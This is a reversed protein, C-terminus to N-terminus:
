VRSREAVMRDHQFEADGPHHMLAESAINAAVAPNRAFTLTIMLLEVWIERQEPSSRALDRLRSLYNTLEETTLTRERMAERVPQFDSWTTMKAFDFNAARPTKRVDHAHASAGSAARHQEQVKDGNQELARLANAVALPNPNARQCLQALQQEWFSCLISPAASLRCWEAATSEDLRSRNFPGLCCEAALLIIEADHKCTVTHHSFTGKGFAIRCQELIPAPVRYAKHAGISVRNDDGSLPFYSEPDIFVLKGNRLVGTNSPCIDFHFWGNCKANALQELVDIALRANPISETILSSLTTVPEMAILLWRPNGIFDVHLLPVLPGNSHAADVLRTQRAELRETGALLGTTPGASSGREEICKLYVPRNYRLWLANAHVSTKEMMGGPKRHIHQVQWEGAPLARLFAEEKDTIMESGMDASGRWSEM